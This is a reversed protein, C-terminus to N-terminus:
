RCMFRLIQLCKLVTSTCVGKTCGSVKKMQERLLTIEAELQKRIQKIKEENAKDRDELKRKCTIEVERLKWEFDNVLQQERDTNLTRLKEYEADFHAQLKQKQKLAENLAKSAFFYTRVSIRWGVTNLSQLSVVEVKKLRENKETEIEVLKKQLQQKETQAVDLEKQLNKILLKLEDVESQM